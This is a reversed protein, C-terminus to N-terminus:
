RRQRGKGGRRGLQEPSRALLFLIPVLPAPERGGQTRLLLAGLADVELDLLLLAGAVQGVLADAHRLLPGADLTEVGGAVHLPRVQDVVGELGVVEVVLVLLVHHHAM